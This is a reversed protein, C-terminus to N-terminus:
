SVMTVDITSLIVISAEGSAAFGELVQARSAGADLAGVWFAKGEADATRDFGNTYLQEVFAANSLATGAYEPAQMISALTNELSVGAQVASVWFAYGDTDVNRGLLLEYARGIVAEQHSHALVTVDGNAFALLEVKDLALMAGDELRTLETRQGADVDIHVDARAGAIRVIDIGAGLDINLAIGFAPTIDDRSETGSVTRTANLEILQAGAFQATLAAVDGAEHAVILSAGSDFTIHEVDLFRDVEGSVNHTLVVTRGDVTVAYDAVVGSQAATDLGFGGNLRDNGAGGHLTDNGTGGYVIDDGADGFTQDNGRLSGVTDKGGGGHLVDNGEGLVIFQSDGDGYVVNDGAGGTVRANGIIIAFDVNELDILTGAPLASTDIVLATKHGDTINAASVVLPGGSAQASLKITQIVVQTGSPLGGLFSAGAAKLDASTTSAAIRADLTSQAISGSVPTGPGNATLGTGVPVGVNLLVSGSTSKVLPIDALKANATSGDEVRGDTVTPITVQQQGDSGIGIQVSVGDIPTPPPTTPTTPPTPTTPLTVFAQFSYTEQAPINSEPSLDTVSVTLSAPGVATATFRAAALDANVQAVTGSLQIGDVDINADEVGSITGNVTTLTVQINVSDPDAVAVVNALSFPADLTISAPTAPSDSLIPRDNVPTTLIIRTAQISEEGDRELEFSVARVLPPNDSLSAYSVARFAAQWQTATAGLASHLTLVGGAAGVVQIDGMSLSDIQIGLKELGTPTAGLLEIAIRADTFTENGQVSLNLADDLLVASGDETFPVRLTSFALPPATDTITLTDRSSLNGAEDVVYIDYDGQALISTNFLGSEGAAIQLTEMSGIQTLSAYDTVPTNALVLYVTSTENVAVGAYGGVAATRALSLAVPATNDITVTTAVGSSVNNGTVTWFTYRGEPLPTGNEFVGEHPISSDTFSAIQLDTTGNLKRTDGDKDLWVTLVQQTSGNEAASLVYELNAVSQTSTSSPGTPHLLSFIPACM